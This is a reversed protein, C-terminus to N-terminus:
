IARIINMMVTAGSVKILERLPMPNLSLWGKTNSNEVKNGFIVAMRALTAKKVFARAPTDCILKSLQDKNVMDEIEVGSTDIGKKEVVFESIFGNTGVTKSWGKWICMVFPQTATDEEQLGLIPRLTHNSSKFLPM